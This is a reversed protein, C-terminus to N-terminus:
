LPLCVGRNVFWGIPFPCWHNTSTHKTSTHKISTHKCCWGSGFMWGDCMIRRHASPAVPGVLTRCSPLASKSSKCMRTSRSPKYCPNSVVYRSNMLIWSFKRSGRSCHYRWKTLLEPQLFVPNLSYWSIWVSSGLSLANLGSNVICSNSTYLLDDDVVDQPCLGIEIALLKRSGTLNALCTKSKWAKEITEGNGRHCRDRMSSAQWLTDSPSEAHRTKLSIVKRHCALWWTRPLWQWGRRTM